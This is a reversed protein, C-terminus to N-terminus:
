AATFTAMVKNSNFIWSGVFDIFDPRTGLEHMAGALCIWNLIEQQGAEEVAKLDLDRFSTYRGAKLEEYCRLDAPQDPHIWGTKETLFAHSWSSSAVVAVRWPSERLIRATERGIQFCRAPTPSIPDFREGAAADFLHGVSGRSRDAVQM